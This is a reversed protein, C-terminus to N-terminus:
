KIGRSPKIYGKPEGNILVLYSATNVIEMALHVWRPDLGIKLMIMHLFTWEVRDYAKSIDLKIAMQRKKWKRRNRIKHLLEYAVINDTILRGPIFTSQADFIVRPFLLKLQNAIVKSLIRSVVYGLSIPRYDVMTKPDQKKLILIIHAYNMKHLM